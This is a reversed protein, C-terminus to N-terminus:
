EPYAGLVSACPYSTPTERPFQRCARLLISGLCLLFDSKPVAEPRTQFLSIRFVKFGVPYPETKLRYLNSVGNWFRSVGVIGVEVKQLISDENLGFPLQFWFVPGLM